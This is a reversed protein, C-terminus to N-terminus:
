AELRAARESGRARANALLAARCTELARDANHHWTLNATVRRRANDGLRRRLAPDALLIEISAVAANLDRPPFLLGDQDHGIVEEFSGYRPAVVARGAAMYELTKLSCGYFLSDPVLAVDMAAVHAPVDAHALGGTVIVRDGYARQTVWHRLDDWSPGQGVLLFRVGPRYLAEIVGKLLDPGHWPHLSAALGIVLNDGLGYRRRVESGDVDPHFLECDAGNHNVVLKEPPLRYAAILHRRLADSVVLIRDAYRLSIRESLFGAWPIHAYEHYYTTNESAPGNVELVLPLGTIARVVIEAMTFLHHRALIVDPREARVIALERRVYRPNWLLEKPEHLYRSFRAKMWSRAADRLNHGNSAASAAALNMAHVSVDHGKGQAAQAFQRVHLVASDDPMQYHFYTVRM